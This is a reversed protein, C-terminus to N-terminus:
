SLYERVINLFIATGPGVLDEPFDYLPHHLDATDEGAGIGFLAGDSRATFHGFDESWAFPQGIFNLPSDGAARRVTDVAEPSNVTAPFEDSFSVKLRLGDRASLEKAVTDMHRTMRDMAADTDSRLTAYVVADGPATGFANEVGLRSGVVTAFAIEEGSAMKNALKGLEGIVSCMAGAPSRGTEPQAAHATTGEFAIRMGVSACSFTGPKLIIEGLPFGPLNHLAFVHDPRIRSYRPDGLVARAGLGNEEAPQFLLVVRGRTPRVSALERGVAALIAMHGDHGCQHSIAPFSSSHPFRHGEQIPLADLECRLLVTPGAQGSSFVFAAGHGGLGLLTEDPDLTEFFIGIRRATETEGGSLEPHQHLARRLKIIENM